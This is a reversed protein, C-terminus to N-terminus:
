PTAARAWGNEAPDKWGCHTSRIRCFLGIAPKRSLCRIRRGRGRFPTSSRYQDAQLALDLRWGGGTESLELQGSWSWRCRFVSAGCTLPRRGQDRNGIGQDRNKGSWGGCSGWPRSDRRQGRGDQCRAHRSRLFVSMGGAPMAQTSVGHDPNSACDPGAPGAATRPEGIRISAIKGGFQPFCRSQAIALGSSFTKKKRAISHQRGDAM